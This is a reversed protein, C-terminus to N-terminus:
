TFLRRGHSKGPMGILLNTSVEQLLHELENELKMHIDAEPIKPKGKVPKWVKKGMDLVHNVIAMTSTDKVGTAAVASKVKEM